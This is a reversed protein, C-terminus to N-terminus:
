CVLVGLSKKISFPSNLISLKHGLLEKGKNEDLYKTAILLEIWYESENAEKLAINMKSLFDKKSQAHEAEKINAGISTGSRLFQKSLIYEKKIDTLHQYLTIVKISFDFAKDYVVSKKM